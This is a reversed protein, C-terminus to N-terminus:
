KRGLLGPLQGSTDYVAFAIFTAISVLVLAYWWGSLQFEKPLRTRCLWALGITAILYGLSDVIAFIAIVQVPSSVFTCTALGGAVFFVVFGLYTWYRSRDSMKHKTIFIEWWDVMSRASGDWQGAISSWLAAFVGILYLAVGFTSIETWIQSNIQIAKMGQAVLGKPMLFAVAATYFVTSVAFTWFYGNGLDFRMLRVWNKLHRVNTPTMEIPRGAEKLAVAGMKKDRIWWSYLTNSTAGGIYGYMGLILWRNTDNGFNPVYGSLWTGFGITGIAVIGGYFAFVVMVAVLFTLIGSIFDFKGTLLALLSTGITIFVAVQVSLGTVFSIVQATLLIISGYTFTIKGYNTISNVHAPWGYPGPVKTFGQYISEGTVLTYRGILENMFWKLLLVVAIVWLFIVGVQSGVWPSLVAEGSGILVAALALGPGLWRVMERFTAPAAPIEGRLVSKESADFDKPVGAIDM